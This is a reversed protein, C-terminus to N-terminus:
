KFGSDGLYLVQFPIDLIIDYSVARTKNVKLLLKDISVM